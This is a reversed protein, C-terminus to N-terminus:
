PTWGLELALGRLTLARHCVHARRAVVEAPGLILHYGQSIIFEIM